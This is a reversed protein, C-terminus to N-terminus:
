HIFIILGFFLALFLTITISFGLLFANIDDANEFYENFFEKM